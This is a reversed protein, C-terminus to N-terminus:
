EKESSSDSSSSRNRKRSEAIYERCARREQLPTLYLDSSIEYIRDKARQIKDKISQKRKQNNNIRKHKGAKKTPRPPSSLAPPLPHSVNYINSVTGTKALCHQEMRHMELLYESYAQKPDHSAQIAEWRRQRARLQYEQDVTPDLPMEEPAIDYSEQKRM